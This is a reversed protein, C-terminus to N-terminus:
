RIQHASFKLSTMKIQLLSQYMDRTPFLSIDSIYISIKKVIEFFANHRHARLYSFFTLLMM